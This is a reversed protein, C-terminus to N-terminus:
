RKFHIFDTVLPTAGEAKLLTMIQGRHYTGHNVIHYLIDEVYSSFSTGESNVYSVLENNEKSKLIALSSQHYETNISHLETIAYKDWVGYVERQGLIRHNWIHQANLTHSLLKRIKATYLTPDREILQIVRQNSQYNYLFKDKFFNTMM